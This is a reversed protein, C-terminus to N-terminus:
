VASDRVWTSMFPDAGGAFSRVTTSCESLSACKALKIITSFRSIPSARSIWVMRRCYRRTNALLVLWPVSEREEGRYLDGECDLLQFLTYSFEDSTLILKDPGDFRVDLTSGFLFRQITEPSSTGESLVISDVIAVEDPWCVFINRVFM